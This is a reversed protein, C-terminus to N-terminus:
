YYLYLSYLFIIVVYRICLYTNQHTNRSQIEAKGGAGFIVVRYDANNNSTMESRVSDDSQFSDKSVDKEDM